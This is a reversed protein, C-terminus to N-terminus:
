GRGEVLADRVVTPDQGLFEIRGDPHRVFVEVRTTPATAVTDKKGCRHAGPITPPLPFVFRGTLGEPIAVELVFRLDGLVKLSVSAGTGAERAARTYRKRLHLMAATPRAGSPLDYLMPWASDDPLEVDEQSAIFLRCYRDLMFGDVRAGDLVWYMEAVKWRRGRQQYRARHWNEEDFRHTLVYERGEKVVEGQKRTHRELGALYGVIVQPYFNQQEPIENLSTIHHPAM